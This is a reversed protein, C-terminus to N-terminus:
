YHENDEGDFPLKNVRDIFKQVELEVREDILENFRATILSNLINFSRSTVQTDETTYHKFEVSSGLLGIAMEFADKADNLEQRLEKEAKKRIIDYLKNISM